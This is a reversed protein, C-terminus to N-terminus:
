PKEVGQEVCAGPRQLASASAQTALDKKGVDAAVAVRVMHLAPALSCEPSILKWVRDPRATHRNYLKDSMVRNQTKSKTLEHELKWDVPLSSQVLCEERCHDGLGSSGHTELM